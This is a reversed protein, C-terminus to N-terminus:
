NVVIPEFKFPAAIIPSLTSIPGDHEKISLTTIAFFARIPAPLITVFSTSSFLVVTPLGALFIPSLFCSKIFLLHNNVTSYDILM